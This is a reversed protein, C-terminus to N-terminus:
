IEVKYNMVKKNLNETNDKLDKKATKLAVSLRRPEKELLEKDTKLAKVDSYVKEYKLQLHKNEQIM